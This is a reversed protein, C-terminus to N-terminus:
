RWHPGDAERGHATIHLAAVRSKIGAATVNVRNEINPPAAFGSSVVLQHPGELYLVYTAQDVPQRRLWPARTIDAHEADRVISPEGLCDCSHARLRQSRDKRGEGAGIIVTVTAVVAPNKGVAKDGVPPVAQVPRVIPAQVFFRMALDSIFVSDSLRHAVLLDVRYGCQAFRQLIRFRSGVRQDDIKQQVREVSRKPTLMARLIGLGGNWGVEAGAPAVVTEM